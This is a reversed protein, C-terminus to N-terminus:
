HKKDPKPTARPAAHQRQPQNRQGEVRPPPPNRPQSRRAQAEPRSRSAGGQDRPRADEGRSRSGTAPEFFRKMTSDGDDRRRREQERAREQDWTRQPERTRQPETRQPETRQPERVRERMPTAAPAERTRQRAAEFERDRSTSTGSRGVDRRDTPHGGAERYSGIGLAEREEPPQESRRKSRPIPPRITTKNDYRLEPVVDGITPKTKVAEARRAMPVQPGPTDVVRAFDRTPRLRPSEMVRVERLETLPVAVRRRGVDRSTMDAKRAVVWADSGSADDARRTGRPVAYGQKRGHVIVPRDRWGLACWGVHDGGVAWSVWAPGWVRGPIWYWGYGPSWGWRGYHFTAWGWPEYPVWTWGYATWVWRGDAYPRWGPGVAPYWVNGIEAEYRWTGHGELEDAYPLVEEPMYRRDDGAYYADRGREDNWRAFDDEDRRDFPEPREPSEGRFAYSREGDRVTVRGRGSDLEAEGEYVSLRVEGQAVDLRYVGPLRPEVDGGPTQILLGDPDRRTLVYLGGSWLRFAPGRGDDDGFDLKSGSDVRLLTGDELQLEARGRGDTFLRDGPLFPMNVVAEEATAETAAEISVVPEAYRVRAPRYGAEDYALAPSALM